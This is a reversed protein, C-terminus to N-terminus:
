HSSRATGTSPSGRRRRAVLGSARRSRARRVDEGDVRVTYVWGDRTFAFRRGNPSWAPQDADKLLLRRHSGNADADWLDGRVVFAIRAGDPSWTPAYGVPLM